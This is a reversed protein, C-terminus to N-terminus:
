KNKKQTVQSQNLEPYPLKSWCIGNVQSNEYIEMEPRSFVRSKWSFMFTQVLLQM